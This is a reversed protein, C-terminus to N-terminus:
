PLREGVWREYRATQYAVSVTGLIPDHCLFDDRRDRDFDAVYLKSNPENCFTSVRQRSPILLTGNRAAMRFYWPGGNPSASRCSVDSRGDGDFDGTYVEDLEGCVRGGPTADNTFTGDQLALRLASEDAGPDRCLIDTRRDDNFKGLLLVRPDCMAGDRRYPPLGFPMSLSGYVIELHSPQLCLLDGLGDGDFDGHRLRHPSATCFGLRTPETSARFSGGATSLATRLEGTAGDHCILDPRGDDDVHAALLTRESGTCFPGLQTDQAGVFTGETTAYAIRPSAGAERCLLDSRGDGDFDAVLLEQEPAICFPFTASWRLSCEEPYVACFVEHIAIRDEERPEERAVDCMLSAPLNSDCGAGEVYRDLLGFVHGFEHKIIPMSQDAYLRVERASAHARHCGPAGPKCWGGGPERDSWVVRVDYETEATHADCDVFTVRKLGEIRTRSAPDIARLWDGIADVISNEYVPRSMLEGAAGREDDGILCVRIEEGVPLVRRMLGDRYRESILMHERESLAPPDPEHETQECAAFVFCWAVPLLWHRLVFAWRTPVHLRLSWLALMVM